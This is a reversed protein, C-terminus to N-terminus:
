KGKIKERAIYAGNLWAEKCMSKVLVITEYNKNNEKNIKEAGENEWWADFAERDETQKEVPM